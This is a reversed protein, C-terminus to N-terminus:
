ELNTFGRRLNELGRGMVKRGRKEFL